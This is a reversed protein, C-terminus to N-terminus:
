EYTQAGLPRVQRKQAVKQREDFALEYSSLIACSHRSLFNMKLASALDALRSKPAEQLCIIDPTVSRLLDILKPFSDEEHWGHVNLTLVTLNGSDM